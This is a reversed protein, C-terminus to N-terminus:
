MASASVRSFKASATPILRRWNLRANRACVPVVGARITSRSRASIARPRRYFRGGFRDFADGLRNAEAVRLVHPPREDADVSLRRLRDPACNSALVLSLCIAMAGSLRIATWSKPFGIATLGFESALGEIETPLRHRRFLWLRQKALCCRALAHRWLQRLSAPGSTSATRM